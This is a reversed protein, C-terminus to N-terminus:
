SIFGHYPQGSELCRGRGFGSIIVLVSINCGSKLLLEVKSISSAMPIGIDSTTYTDKGAQYYVLQKNPDDKKLMAFFAM